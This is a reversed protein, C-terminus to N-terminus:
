LIGTATSQDTGGSVEPRAQLTFCFFAGANLLPKEYVHISRLSFLNPTEPACYIRVPGRFSGPKTKRFRPRLSQPPM